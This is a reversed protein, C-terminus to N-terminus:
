KGQFDASDVTLGSGSGLFVARHISTLERHHIAPRSSRGAARIMTELAETSECGEEDDDRLDDLGPVVAEEGGGVIFPRGRLEQM